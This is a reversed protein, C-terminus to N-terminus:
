YPLKWDEPLAKKQRKRNLRYLQLLLKDKVSGAGISCKVYLHLKSRKVPEDGEYLREFNERSCDLKRYCEKAFSINGAGIFAEAAERGNKMSYAHDMMRAFLDPFSAAAEKKDEAACYDWINKVITLDDDIRRSFDGTGAMASDDRILYRVLRDSIGFVKKCNLLYKMNFSLDEGVSCGPDFTVDADRIIQLRYIKNWVEFGMHYPILEKIIFSLREGDSSLGTDFDAFDYDDLRSGDPKWRTYQCEALDACSEEMADVLKEIMTEEAADDADLFCVYEGTALGLANNRAASVGGNEQHVAKIREDSEAAKQILSFTSDVSGDDVVIIELNGYTQRMLSQLAAEIYNEVNYAPMIVSVKVKEEM